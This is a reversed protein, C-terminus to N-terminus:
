VMAIVLHLKKMYIEFTFLFCNVYGKLKVFLKFNLSMCLIIRTLQVTITTRIYLDRDARTWYEELTLM